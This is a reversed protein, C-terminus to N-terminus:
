REQPRSVSFAGHKGLRREGMEKAQRVARPDELMCAPLLSLEIERAEDRENLIIATDRTANLISHLQM